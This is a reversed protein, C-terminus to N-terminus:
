STYKILMKQKNYRTKVRILYYLKYKRIINSQGDNNIPTLLSFFAITSWNSFYSKFTWIVSCNIPCIFLLAEDLELANNDTGSPSCVLMIWHQVGSIVNNGEKRRGSVWWCVLIASIPMIKQLIERTHCSNREPWGGVATVSFWSDMCPILWKSARPTVLCKEM